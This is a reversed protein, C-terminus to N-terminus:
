FLSEFPVRPLSELRGGVGANVISFGGRAFDDRLIAFHSNVEEIGSRRAVVVPDHEHRLDHEQMEYFYRGGSEYDLDCGIM